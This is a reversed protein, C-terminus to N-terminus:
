YSVIQEVEMFSFLDWVYCHGEALLSSMSKLYAITTGPLDSDTKKLLMLFTTAERIVYQVVLPLVSPYWRSPQVGSGKRYREACEKLKAEDNLVTLYLHVQEDM